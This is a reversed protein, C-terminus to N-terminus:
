TVRVSFFGTALPIRVGARGSEALSTTSAITLPLHAAGVRILAARTYQMIHSIKLAFLPARIIIIIIIKNTYRWDMHLMSM